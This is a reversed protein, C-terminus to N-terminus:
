RRARRVRWGYEATAMVAGGLLMLAVSSLSLRVDAPAETAAAGLARNGSRRRTVKVAPPATTTSSTTTPPPLTSPTAAEKTAAAVLPTDPQPEPALPVAPKVPAPRPQPAVGVPAPAVTMPGSEPTKFDVTVWILGNADVVGVGIARFNPDTLNRYHGPSAEFAAEIDDVTPGEGVNEAIRSWNVVQDELNPNHSLNNQSAMVASWARAVDAMQTDVTLPVLGLSVRRANTRAVFQLEETRPEARAPVPVSVFVAVGVVVVGARRTM